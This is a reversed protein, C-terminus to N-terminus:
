RYAAMTELEDERNARSTYWDPLITEQSAVADDAGAVHWWRQLAEDRPSESDDAGAVHWWRQLVENQAPQMDDAGAMSWWRQLADDQMRHTDCRGWCNEVDGAKVAPVAAVSGLGFLAVLLIKSVNKM